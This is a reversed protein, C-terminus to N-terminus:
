QWGWANSSCSGPGWFDHSQNLFFVYPTNKKEKGEPESSNSQVQTVNELKEGWGRLISVEKEKKKLASIGVYDCLELFRHCLSESSLLFGKILEEHCSILVFRRTQEWQEIPTKQGDGTSSGLARPMLSSNGGAAGLCTPPTNPHWLLPKLAIGQADRPGSAM